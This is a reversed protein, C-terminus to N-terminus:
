YRSLYLGASIHKVNSGKEVLPNFHPLMHHMELTISIRVQHLKSQVVKLMCWMCTAKVEIWDMNMEGVSIYYSKMGADHMM